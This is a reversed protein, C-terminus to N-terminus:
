TGLRSRAASKEFIDFFMEYDAIVFVLIATLEEKTLRGMATEFAVRFSERKEDPDLERDGLVSVIEDTFRQVAAEETIM